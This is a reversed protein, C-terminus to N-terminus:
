GNKKEKKLKRMIIKYKKRFDSLKIKPLHDIFLVGNLHDIEHQVEVAELGEFLQEVIEGDLTQYKVMVKASRKVKTFYGPVSLCGETGFQEGWWDTIIPNIMTLLENDVTIIIVNFLLGIQPAALGVGSRTKSLVQRMQEDITKAAQLDTIPSSPQLLMEDPYILIEDM